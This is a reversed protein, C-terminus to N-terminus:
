LFWHLKGEREHRRQERERKGESSQVCKKVDGHADTLRFSCIKFMGLM